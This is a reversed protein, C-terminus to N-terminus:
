SLNLESHVHNKPPSPAHGMPGAVVAPFYGLPFVSKIYFVLLLYLALLMNYYYNNNNNEGSIYANIHM